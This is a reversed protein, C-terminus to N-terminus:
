DARTLGRCGARVPEDRIADRCGLFHELRTRLVAVQDAYAPDAFRNIREFPAEAYSYFEWAIDTGEWDPDLDLRVLLGDKSRVATYSPIVDLTGGSYPRDPDFGLSPAWTHELFTYGRRDLTPDTFTPAISTGSRYAPSAIGALDEFTAALDINSVVETRSGPVVGPGTVLLPVHVDSDYPSGKGRGLGHQGLHFGNDSTLVVYTDAGVEDLIRRVARDISQVMRARDRLDDRARDASLTV